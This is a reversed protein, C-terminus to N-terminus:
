ENDGQVLYGLFDVREMEINWEECLRLLATYENKTIRVGYEGLQDCLVELALPCEGHDIYELADRLVARELRDDFIYELSRLEDERAKLDM